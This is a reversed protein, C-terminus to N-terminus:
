SIFMRSSIDKVKRTFEKRSEEWYDLLEGLPGKFGRFKWIQHSYCIPVERIITTSRMHDKMLVPDKVGFIVVARLSVVTLDPTLIIITSIIKHM